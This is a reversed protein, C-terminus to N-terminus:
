SRKSLHMLLLILSIVFGPGIVLLPNQFLFEQNQKLLSGLEPFDPDGSLGLFSLGSLELVCIAFVMKALVSVDNRLNPWITYKLIQQHSAGLVLSAKVYLANKEELWLIRFQRFTLPVNGFSAAIILSQPSPNLFVLLLLGIFIVPIAVWISIITNVIKNLFLFGKQQEAMLLVLSTVFNLSLALTAMGVTYGAGRWIRSFFDRGLGDIGCWHSLTPSSCAAERFQQDMPDHPTWFLGTLAIFIVTWNAITISKNSLLKM